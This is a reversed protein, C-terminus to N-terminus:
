PVLYQAGDTSRVLDTWTEVANCLLSALARSIEEVRTAGSAAVFRILWPAIRPLYRWRIILPGMPDLLMGPVSRVVGPMGVPDVTCNAIIGANGFSTGEGPPRPDIVGADDGVARDIWDAHG